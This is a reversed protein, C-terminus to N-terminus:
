IMDQSTIVFGLSPPPRSITVVLCLFRARSIFLKANISLDLSEM